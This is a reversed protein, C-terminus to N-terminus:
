VFYIKITENKKKKKKEVSIKRCTKKKRTLHQQKKWVQFCVSIKDLTISSQGTYQEYSWNLDFTIWLQFRNLKLPHFHIHIKSISVEIFLSDYRIIRPQHPFFLALLCQSCLRSSEHHTHTPSEYYVYNFNSYFIWFFIVLFEM